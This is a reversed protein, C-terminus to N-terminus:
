RLDGEGSAEQIVNERIEADLTPETLMGEIAPTPDSVVLREGGTLGSELVTIAGQSFAVKVPRRELRNEENVLYVAGDRVCTRPVVVKGTRAAGRLEVECFMAPALPPREGPIVNEYPRDVAIVVRLTRTQLDLEERIRDFRGDWEVLFDGTRLRVKAEVDFVKRVTQMAEQSLNVPEHGPALLRRVQDIPVQAEVEIVAAGYADFLAQGAAVFQGVELSVDSLRCDFPAKITTHELDLQAQGLAAQKADLSATLAEEQSPLVNLSSRLNQVSQKQLLVNRSTQDLESQTAANTPRLQRIRELESEALRLSEEEIALSAELNTKQTRLEVQQAEIQALEAKLQATRLEYEAPDIRLVTAGRHIISGAKLEPHVEVIRGKVEAVASWVDAPVANGFGLVRPVVATQPAEIVLLPRSTELIKEQQPVNRESVVRYLLFAGVLIPPLILLRRDFLSLIRAMRMSLTGTRKLFMQLDPLRKVM